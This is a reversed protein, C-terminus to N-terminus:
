AARLGIESRKLWTMSFCGSPDAPRCCARSPRPSAPHVLLRQGIEVLRDTEIGIVRLGVGVPRQEIPLGTLEIQREGIVVLRQRDIARIRRGIEAAADDVAFCPRLAWDSASKLLAIASFGVVRLGIIIAAQEILALMLVLEGDVIEGGRDSQWGALGLRM